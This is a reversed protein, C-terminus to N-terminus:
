LECPTKPFDTRSNLKHSVVTTPHFHHEAQYYITVGHVIAHLKDFSNVMYVNMVVFVTICHSFRVERLDQSSTTQIEHLLM